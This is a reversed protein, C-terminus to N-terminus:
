YVGKEIDIENVVEFGQPCFVQVVGNLVVAHLTVGRVEIRVGRGHRAPFKARETTIQSMSLTVYAQIIISYSDEM